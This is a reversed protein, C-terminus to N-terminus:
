MLNRWEFLTSMSFNSKSFSSMKLGRSLEDLYMTPTFSVVHCNTALTEFCFGLACNMAMASILTTSRGTRFIQLVSPITGLGDTGDEGASSPM